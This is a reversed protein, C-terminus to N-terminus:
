HGLTGSIGPHHLVRPPNLALCPIPTSEYANWPKAQWAMHCHRSSAPDLLPWFYPSRKGLRLIQARPARSVTNRWEGAWECSLFQIPCLIPPLPSSMSDTIVTTRRHLQAVFVFVFVWHAVDFLSWRIPSPYESCVACKKPTAPLWQM